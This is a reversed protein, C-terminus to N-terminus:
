VLAALKAVAVYIQSIKYWTASDVIGTSPLKFVSQFTSVARRTDAGYVGDVSIKKIAPYNDSIRNLQTQITRVADGTSGASLATVFSSPVGEVKEAEKLFSEWGYYTKIINIASYGQDGLAKSGWQSLREPCQVRKGDCYEAFLPQRIGPKTIYNKFLEDVIESIERFYNRGYVFAQDFQTSNTITFNYGKNRYWETYVRNLTLSIIALVNARITEPPWTSYIESSAVNKIYDKFPVWYNPAASNTPVGAHVIVFEPIVPEPLVVFGSAPPLEKVESEPIKPPYTGYLTNPPIVIEREATDAAGPRLMVDQLAEEDPLVQVGIIDANEFGDASVRVNYLNYPQPSDPEQSYDVPPAPLDIEVTQGSDDSYIESITRDPDLSASIQIRAGGVPKGITQSYVSVRLFGRM